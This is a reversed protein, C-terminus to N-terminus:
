FIRPETTEPAPTWIRGSVTSPIVAVVCIVVLMGVRGQMGALRVFIRNQRRHRRDGNEEVTSGSLSNV